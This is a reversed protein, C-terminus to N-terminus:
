GADEHDDDRLSRVWAVSDGIDAYYGAFAQLHPLAAEWSQYARPPILAHFVFKEISMADLDWTAVGTIGIEQYLYNGLERAQEETVSIRVDQRSTQLQCVPEAEGGILVLKGYLTSTEEIKLPKTPLPSPIDPIVISTPVTIEQKGGQYPHRNRFRVSQAQAARADGFFRRLSQRLDSSMGEFQQRQVRKMVSVLADIPNVQASPMVSLELVISGEAFRSLYIPAGEESDFTERVCASVLQDTARLVQTLQDLSVQQPYPGALAIIIQQQPDYKM